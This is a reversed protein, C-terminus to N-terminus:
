VKARNGFFEVWYMASGYPVQFRYYPLVEPALVVCIELPPARVTSPETIWISPEPVRSVLTTPPLTTPPVPVTM